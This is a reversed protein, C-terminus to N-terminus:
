KICLPCHLRARRAESQAGPDYGDSTEEVGVGELKERGELCRLHFLHRCAFLVLPGLSAHNEEGELGGGRGEEPVERRKGSGRERRGQMEGGGWRGVKRRGESEVREEWAEWVGNGKSGGDVGAGWVRKGCIECTRVRARWGRQREEALRAVSVFVDSDLLQNTLNLLTAEFAYASFIDSLITRLDSLTPSSLSARTLFLSLIPLFSPTSPSSSPKTTSRNRSHPSFSSRSQSRSQSRSRASQSPAATTTLLATFTQQTTARLSTVVKTTDFGQTPPHAESAQRASASVHKTITFVVELLDLWLHEATTLDEEKVQLTKRRGLRAQEDGQQTQGQCLWIGVKAYKNVAELLDDAAEETNKADPSNPAADVLGTVATDLTGLHKVLRDMADQALGERAMLVVAADVAGSRELEPLVSNLRLDGSQLMTVYDAVHTPNYQCMLKVYREVLDTGLSAQNQASDLGAFLSEPELLTRLFVYQDQLDTLMDLVSELVDPSYDQILQATQVIDIAALDQAHAVVIGEIEQRQKKTSDSQPRLCDRICGFVTERDYPDDFYAELLAGYEKEAKYVSKLVRFFGAERFLPILSKIDSPHYISLLYEVSLQCEDAFDDTPYQCLGVLVRHLQSGSLLIFQPFKPMNRAIFMNLYEIEMPGFEPPNMIGLLISIIYQRTASPGSGDETDQTSKSQHGNTLQEQSGNLFNDEFVENLMSVFNGADFHLLLRLYPFNPEAEKGEMTCIISGGARPSKTARASFLFQYLETQATTADGESLYEGSPYIRGTLAFALYSFVKMASNHYPSEVNDQEERDNNRVFKILALLDVLPTVYDGLAQNWVHVLADYLNHQKLLTTASDIDVTRADLRCIMEELRSDQGLSTFHTILDKFVTPPLATIHGDLIAPEIAELVIPECSAEEYQEYVDELFYDIQGMSICANLSEVTLQELQGKQSGEAEAAGPRGLQYKTSALIMELLKEQVMSHRVSDEEPLGVTLRDTDGTYYSTALSIAGIFDGDEMLALLRDAWNSLTGISVDNFGLLFLRGKYARFSMHFADAVVGHLSSTDAEDLSDVVPQLQSSFLDSHYIHKYLLDFSDTVRLSGDELILLRQSITLVGLVSRSLWQVAVIAESARWRSRPRFHLNALKDKEWEEPKEADEVDLVTLVNSWCYVLKTMSSSPTTENDKGKLKVAPFWALCGSLASHPAIEKPRPAKHQTQAVPTTSVIVLLYPTLLATLGMSDTPREVNGLPLPSFALVSSPKRQKDESRPGPPYRGLIRTTKITRAIAGLGRTALHSFAMGGDDASVLATHRTGLFGVHLITSGSVHGDKHSQDMLERDIPPIQLFPKAPRALEWTYIHGNAHGGAVTSYDASIALSTVSGSEAAPTGSGIIVKLVQQYDFVLIYGKSTGIVLSASVSFCTPRGFNRKGVESFVQGSIKRLKTWRVVEWPAQPTEAESEKDDGLGPLNSSLSSQRSHPSLFAPSLNRPSQFPSSSLRSQFRRDFPQLSGSVTRSPTARSAPVSSGPSSLISGKLSPTDDPISASVPPSVSNAIPSALGTPSLINDVEQMSEVNPRRVTSEEDQEEDEANTYEPLELDEDHERDSLRLDQERALEDAIEDENEGGGEVGGSVASM